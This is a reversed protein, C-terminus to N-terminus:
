REIRSFKADQLSLNFMLGRQDFVYGVIPANPAPNTSAQGGVDVIVISGDVGAKWYGDRRAKARFERLAQDSLFAVIVSKRQAGFQIGLSGTTLSYYGVTAGGVRLVGEGYAGGLGVGAQIIEPFVLLGRADRLVAPADRFESRFQHLTREAAADIAVATAARSAVPSFVLNALLCLCVVLVTRQSARLMRM